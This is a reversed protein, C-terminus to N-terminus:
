GGRLRGWSLSRQREVFSRTMASIDSVRAPQVELRWVRRRSRDERSAVAGNAVLAAHQQRRGGVEGKEAGRAALRVEGFIKVVGAFHLM